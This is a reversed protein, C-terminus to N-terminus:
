QGQTILSLRIWCSITVLLSDDILAKPLPSCSRPSVVIILAFEVSIFAAKTWEGLPSEAWLKSFRM